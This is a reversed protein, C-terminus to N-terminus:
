VLKFYTDILRREELADARRLDMENNFEEQIRNYLILSEATSMDHFLTDLIVKQKDNNQVDTLKQTFKIYANCLYKRIKM